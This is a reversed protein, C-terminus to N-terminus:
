AFLLDFLQLVFGLVILWIATFFGLQEDRYRRRNDFREADSQAIERWVGFIQDGDATFGQVTPPFRLLLLTGVITTILGFIALPHPM